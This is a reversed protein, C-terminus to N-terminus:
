RSPESPEGPSASPGESKLRDMGAQLAVIRDAQVRTTAELEAVRNELFAVYCPICAMAPLGLISVSETHCLRCVFDKVKQDGGIGAFLAEDSCEIWEFM